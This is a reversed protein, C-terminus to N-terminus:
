IHKERNVVVSYFLGFVIGYHTGWYLYLDFLSAFGSFLAANAFLRVKINKNFIYFMPFILLFVYLMLGFIGNRLLM